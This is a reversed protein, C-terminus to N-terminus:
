ARRRHGTEPNVSLSSPLPSGEKAQAEDDEPRMRAHKTERKTYLSHEEASLRLVCAVVRRNEECLLNFTGCARHTTMCEYPVKMISLFEHVAPPLPRLTAGTGFILYDPSPTLLHLFALTEPTVDDWRDVMWSFAMAPTVVVSSHYMIENIGIVSSGFGSIVVSPLSMERREVATGALLDAGTVSATASSSSSVSVEELLSFSGPRPRAPGATAGGAAAADTVPDVSARPASTPPAIGGPLGGYGYSFLSKPAVMLPQLSHLVLSTAPAVACRSAVAALGRSLTRGLM